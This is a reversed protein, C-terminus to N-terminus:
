PTWGCVKAGTRNHELLQRAAGGSMTEVEEATPRIPRNSSCWDATTACGTVFSMVCMLMLCSRFQFM